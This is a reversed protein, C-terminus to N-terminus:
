AKVFRMFIPRLLRGHDVSSCMVTPLCSTDKGSFEGMPSTGTSRLEVYRRVYLIDEFFAGETPSASRTELSPTSDYVSEEQDPDYDPMNKFDTADVDDDTWLVFREEEADM